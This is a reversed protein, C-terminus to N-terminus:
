SGTKRENMILREMREPFRGDGRLLVRVPSTLLLRLRPDM